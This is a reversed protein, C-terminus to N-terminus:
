DSINPGDPIAPVEFLSSSRHMGLNLNICNQHSFNDPLFENHLEELPRPTCYSLESQQPEDTVPTEM